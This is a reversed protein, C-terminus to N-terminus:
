GIMMEPQAAEHSGDRVARELNLWIRRAGDLAIAEAPPNLRPSLYAEVCHSLADLGTAATLGLKRGGKLTILAARGVESGTGATMPIAVVPVVKATIRDAGGLIVEVGQAEIIAPDAEAGTSIMSLSGTM